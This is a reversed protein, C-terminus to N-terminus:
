RRTLAVPPSHVRLTAPVLRVALMTSDDAGPAGGRLGGLLADCLADLDHPHRRVGRSAAAALRTLGDDLHRDREEVLGDSYLLVLDGPALDVRSERPVTGDDVGLPLGPDTEAFRTTGDPSVVLPPLHGANAFRFTGDAVDLVGYVLTAIEEEGLTGLRDTWRVVLPPELEQLAYARVANRLQGMLSAARVGKGVVDGLALGLRGGPLELCDYWDGGIHRGRTGPVYRGAATLGPVDPLRGPLLSRQLTDAMEHELEYLRSRELAQACQAALTLLFSRETADFRHPASFTVLVAGLNEGSATLPLAACAEVGARAVEKALAPYRDLLTQRNECLVPTGERAAQPIPADLDLPMDSWRRAVDDDFGVLTVTLRDVGQRRLALGGGQAGVVCFGETTVVAAVEAPTLAESLSATVRLLRTSREAEEARAAVLELRADRELAVRQAEGLMRWARDEARWSSIQVASACLIFGAHLLAWRVPHAAAQPHDYVAEPAIVGLVGHHVLVYAFALLYPRWDHYLAVLGLMVFFHFHLETLGHSLHILVASCSLLGLTTVCSHWVRGPYIRAAVALAALLAVEEVVHLPSAGTVLGLV